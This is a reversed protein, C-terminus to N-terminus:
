KVMRNTFMYKEVQTHFKENSSHGKPDNVYVGIRHHFEDMNGVKEEIEKLRIIMTNLHGLHITLGKM